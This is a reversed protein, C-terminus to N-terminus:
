TQQAASEIRLGRGLRRPAEGIASPQLKLRRDPGANGGLEIPASVLDGEGFLRQAAALRDSNIGFATKQDAAGIRALVPDRESISAACLSSPAALYLSHRRSPLAAAAPHPRTNSLSRTALRPSIATRMMRAAFSSPRRVTATNLSASLSLRATRKASSATWM